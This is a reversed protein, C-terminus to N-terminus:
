LAPTAWAVWVKLEVAVVSVTSRGSWSLEYVKVTAAMLAM